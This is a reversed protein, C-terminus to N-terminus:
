TMANSFVMNRYYQITNLSGSSLVFGLVLVAIITAFVDALILRTLPSEPDDPHPDALIVLLLVMPLVFFHTGLVLNAPDANMLLLYGALIVLLPVLIKGPRNRIHQTVTWAVWLVILNLATIILLIASLQLLTDLM